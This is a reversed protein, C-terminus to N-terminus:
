NDTRNRNLCSIQESHSRMYQCMTPAAGELPESCNSTYQHLGLKNSETISDVTCGIFKLTWGAHIANEIQQKIYSSEHPGTNSQGDSIIVIDKPINTSFIDYLPSYLDTMGSPNYTITANNVDRVPLDLITEYKDNFAILTIKINLLMTKINLDLDGMALDYQAQIFEKCAQIPEEGLSQMSGSKDLLIIIDNTTNENKKFQINKKEHFRGIQAM